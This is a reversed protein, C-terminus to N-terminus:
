VPWCSQRRGTTQSDTRELVACALCLLVYRRRDFDPLGRTPDNTDSPRKYLRAGEREVVLSWGTERAFWERLKDAQRRVSAFGPHTSGLLPRMLIARLGNQFDERQQRAQLEGIQRSDSASRTERPSTTM